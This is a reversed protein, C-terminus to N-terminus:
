AEDRETSSSPLQTQPRQCAWLHLWVSQVSFHVQNLSQKQIWKLTNWARRWREKRRWASASDYLRLALHKIITLVETRIFLNRLLTMSLDKASSAGEWLFVATMKIEPVISPAPFLGWCTPSHGALFRLPFPQWLNLYKFTEANRKFKLAARHTFM